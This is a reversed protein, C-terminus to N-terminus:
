VPLLISLEDSKILSSRFDAILKERTNEDVNFTLKDDLVRFYASAVGVVLGEPFKMTLTTDNNITWKITGNLSLFENKTEDESAENNNETESSAESPSLKKFLDTLIKVDPKVTVGSKTKGILSFEKLLLVEGILYACKDKNDIIRKVVNSKENVKKNSCYDILESRRVAMAVVKTLNVTFDSSNGFSAQIEAKGLKTIKLLGELFSVTVDIDLNEVETKTYSLDFITKADIRESTENFLEYYEGIPELTNELKNPDLVTLPFLNYSPPEVIKFKELLGIRDLAEKLAEKIISAM